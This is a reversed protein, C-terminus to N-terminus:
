LHDVLCSNSWGWPFPCIDFPYVPPSLDSDRKIGFYQSGLATTSILHSILYVYFQSLLLTSLFCSSLFTYHQCFLLFYTCSSLTQNNQFSLTSCTQLSQRWRFSESHSLIKLVSSDGWWARRNNEWKKEEEERDERWRSEEGTTYKKTVSCFVRHRDELVKYFGRPFFAYTILLASHQSHESTWACYPSRVFSLDSFSCSLQWTNSCCRWTHVTNKFM